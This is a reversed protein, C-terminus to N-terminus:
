QALSEYFANLQAGIAAPAHREIVQRRGSEALEQRRHSDPLLVTLQQALSVADGPKFLFGHGNSPIAEPIGGVNTGVVATGCALAEIATQGFAEARSPVVFLDMASYAAVKPADMNLYGLHTWPLTIRAKIDSGPDRGFSLLTVQYRVSAPLLELSQILDEFGKRTNTLNESAFGIVTHEPPIGFGAKAADKPQPRFVDSDLPYYITEIPVDPDFFGSGRAEQANWNSNAIVAVRHNSLAHQKITRVETELEGLHPNNQSDSSYHFGGLYPQQDHLTLVTPKNVKGFFRPWDLTGAVWHINIVDADRVWPHDEPCYDSFPPTFLEYGGSRASQNLAELKRRMRAQQSTDIGFRRALRLGFSAKRWTFKEVREDHERPLNCVLIRSDVGSELLARHYRHLGIGAGGELSTAIHVITM